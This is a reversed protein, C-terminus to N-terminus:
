EQALGETRPHRKMAPDDIDTPAQDWGLPEEDKMSHDPQQPQPERGNRQDVVNEANIQREPDQKNTVSTAIHDPQKSIVPRDSDLRGMGPERDPDASM